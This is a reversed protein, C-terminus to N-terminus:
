NTQADLNFGKFIQASVPNQFKREGTLLWLEEHVDDLHGLVIMERNQVLESAAAEPLPALGMQHTVLLKQLSTDQTEFAVDPAIKRTKFWHDIDLRLKSHATPLIM